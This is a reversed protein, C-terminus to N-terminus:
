GGAVAAVLRVTEPGDLTLDLGGRERADVGDVYVNV